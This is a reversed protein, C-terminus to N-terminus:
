PLSYSGSPERSKEQLLPLSVYAPSQQESPRTKRTIKKDWKDRRNLQAHFQLLIQLVGHGLLVPLLSFLTNGASYVFQLLLYTDRYAPLILAIAPSLILCAFPMTPQQCGVLLHKKQINLTHEAESELCPQTPHPAQAMCGASNCPTIESNCTWYCQPFLMQIVGLTFQLQQTVRVATEAEGKLAKSFNSVNKM